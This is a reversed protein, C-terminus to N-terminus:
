LSVDYTEGVIPLGGGPLGVDRGPQHAWLLVADHVIGVSGTGTIMFPGTAIGSEEVWAMGTLEGCGNMSFWGGYCSGENGVGRPLVATVGSRVASEGEGSILTTHGVAVGAVDVLSNTRGPTGRFPVGLDRARPAAPLAASSAAAAAAAAPNSNLGAAEQPRLHHKLGRLRRRSGM